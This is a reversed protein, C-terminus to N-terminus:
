TVGSSSADVARVCSNGAGRYRERLSAPNTADRYDRIGSWFLWDETKQRSLTYMNAMTVAFRPSRM